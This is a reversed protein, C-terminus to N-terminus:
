PVAGLMQGWFHADNVDAANFHVFIKATTPVEVANRPPDTSDIFNSVDRASSRSSIALLVSPKQINYERLTHQNQLERGAFIQRTPCLAILCVCVFVYVDGVMVILSTCM